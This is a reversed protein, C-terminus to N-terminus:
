LEVDTIKPHGLERGAKFGCHRLGLIGTFIGLDETFQPRTERGRVIRGRGGWCLGLQWHCTPLAHVGLTGTSPPSFGLLHIYLLCARHNTRPRSATFALETSSDPQWTPGPNPGTHSPSGGLTSDSSQGACRPYPLQSGRTCSGHRSPLM